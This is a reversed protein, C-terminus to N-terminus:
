RESLCVATHRLLLPIPLNKKMCLLGHIEVLNPYVLNKMICLLGQLEVFFFLLIKKFLQYEGVEDNM